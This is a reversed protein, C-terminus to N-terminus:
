SVLRNPAQVKQVAPGDWEVGDFEALEFGLKLLEGHIRPAGWLPNEQSMRRILLDRLGRDIRPRGAQKRSKWRWYTRFGAQHWRLITAPKVIRAVGLLSPWLRTM